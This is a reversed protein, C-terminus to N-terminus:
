DTISLKLNSIAIADGLKALKNEVLESKQLIMQPSSSRYFCCPGEARGRNACFQLFILHLCIYVLKAIICIFVFHSQFVLVMSNLVAFFQSKRGSIWTSPLLRSTTFSYLSSPTIIVLSRFHSVNDSRCLCMVLFAKLLRQIILLSFFRPSLVSLKNCIYMVCTLLKSSYPATVHCEISVSSFEFVMSLTCFDAREIM